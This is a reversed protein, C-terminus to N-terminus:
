KATIPNLNVKRTATRYADAQQSCVLTCIGRYGGCGKICQTIGANGGHAVLLQAFAKGSRTPGSAQLQDWARKTTAILAVQQEIICMVFIACRCESCRETIKRRM